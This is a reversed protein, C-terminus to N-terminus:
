HCGNTYGVVDHAQGDYWASCRWGADCSGVPGQCRNSVREQSCPPSSNSPTFPCQRKFGDISPHHTTLSPVQFLSPRLICEGAEGDPLLSSTALQFSSSTSTHSPISTCTCEGAEGNPLPNAAYAAAGSAVDVVVLNFGHYEDRRISRLYEEPTLQGELFGTVLAGRSRRHAHDAGPDPDHQLTRPLQHSDSAPSGDLVRVLQILHELLKCGM